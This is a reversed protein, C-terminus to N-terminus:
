GPLELTIRTEGCNACPRDAIVRCFASGDPNLIAARIEDASGGVSTAVCDLCFAQGPHDGLFAMVARGHRREAGVRSHDSRRENCEVHLDGDLRRYRPAGPLIIDGCVSCPVVDDSRPESGSQGVSM